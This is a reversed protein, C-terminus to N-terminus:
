LGAGELEPPQPAAGVRVAVTRPWDSRALRAAVLRQSVCRESAADAWHPTRAGRTGRAAGPVGRADGPGVCEALTGGLQTVDADVPFTLRSVLDEFEDHHAGFADATNAYGLVMLVPFFAATSSGRTRSYQQDSFTLDPAGAGRPGRSWITSETLREAPADAIEFLIEHAPRGAVERPRSGLVRSAMPEASRPVTRPFGYAVQGARAATAVYGTLIQGLDGAAAERSTPFTSVFVSGGAAGRTYLLDFVPVELSADLVGDADQDMPVERAESARVHPQWEPALVGAGAARRALVYGYTPHQYGAAQEQLTPFPAGCAGLTLLLCLGPVRASSATM